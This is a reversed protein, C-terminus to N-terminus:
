QYRFVKQQEVEYSQAVTDKGKKTVYFCNRKPPNAALSANQASPQQTSPQIFITVKASAKGKLKKANYQKGVQEEDPKKHDHIMANMTIKEVQIHTERSQPCRIWYPFVM